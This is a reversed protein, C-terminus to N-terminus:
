LGIDAERRVEKSESPFWVGLNSGVSQPNLYHIVNHLFYGFALNELEYSHWRKYERKQDPPESHWWHIMRNPGLCLLETVRRSNREAADQVASLADEPEVTGEYAFFGVLPKRLGNHRVLESNAALKRCSERLISSNVRTKVEILAHAMDATVFALDGERFLVPASADYILIDIQTSVSSEGVVFGTGVCVTPPLHRKLIQRIISEKWQGDTLYHADRIFTRVRTRLAMIEDSLSHFYQSMDLPQFGDLNRSRPM